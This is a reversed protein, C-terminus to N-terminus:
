AIRHGEENIGEFVNLALRQEAADNGYMTVGAATGVANANAQALIANVTMVTNAPSGFAAKNTTM